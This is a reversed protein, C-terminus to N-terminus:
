PLKIDLTQEIAQRIDCQQCSMVREVENVKADVLYRYWFGQLFHFATGARGDLFGFALVYRFFFYLFARAGGPLRGYVHHKALRKLSLMKLETQEAEHQDARLFHYKRDLQEVAELSAYRNHKATWWTLSRLNHDYLTGPLTVTPGDVQMHEDMLREVCHAHGRRFLRLIYVPYVMGYRIDRGQFILRRKIYVGKASVEPLRTRLTDVLEDDLYEDADVRLVWDTDEPIQSLGWNLQSAHNTFPHQIVTAGSAEALAVTKDTSFSDVLLVHPTVRRISAICREIHMEENHSLVIATIKM